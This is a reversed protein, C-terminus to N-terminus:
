SIVLSRQKLTFKNSHLATSPIDEDLQALSQSGVVEVQPDKQGQGLFTGPLGKSALDTRLPREM